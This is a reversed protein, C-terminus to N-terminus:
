PLAETWRKSLGCTAAPADPTHDIADLTAELDARAKTAEAMAAAGEARAQTLADGVIQRQRETEAQTAAAVRAECAATADAYVWLYIACGLLAHSAASVVGSAIRDPVLWSYVLLGVAGLAPVLWLSPLWSALVSLIWSM